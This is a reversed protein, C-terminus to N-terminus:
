TLSTRECFLAHRPEARVAVRRDAPARAACWALRVEHRRHRRSGCAMSRWAALVLHNLARPGSRRSPFAGVRSAVRRDGRVLAGGWAMRAEGRRHPQSGCAMSRSVRHRCPPPSSVVVELLRDFCRSVRDDDPRNASGHRSAALWLHTAVGPAAPRSSLAAVRSAARRCASEAGACRRPGRDCRCRDGAGPLRGRDRRIRRAVSRSAISDSAVCRLDHCTGPHPDHRCNTSASAAARRDRRDRGRSV